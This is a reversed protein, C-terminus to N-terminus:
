TNSRVISSCGGAAAAIRQSDGARGWFFILRCTPYIHGGEGLGDAEGRSPPFKAELGSKTPNGGVGVRVNKGGINKRDIKADCRMCSTHM